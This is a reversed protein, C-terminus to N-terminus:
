KKMNTLVLDPFRHAAARRLQENDTVLLWVVKQGPM